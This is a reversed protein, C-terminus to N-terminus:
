HNLFFVLYNNKTKEHCSKSEFKENITIAIIINFIEYFNIM